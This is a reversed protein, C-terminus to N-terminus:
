LVSDKRHTPTNFMGTKGGSNSFNYDAEENKNHKNDKPTTGKPTVEDLDNLNNDIDEQNPADIITKRQLKFIQRDSKGSQKLTYANILTNYTELVCIVFAKMDEPDLYVILTDLAM